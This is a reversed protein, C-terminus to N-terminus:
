ALDRGERVKGKRERVVHQHQENRDRQHRGYHFLGSHSTTLSGVVRSASLCCVSSIGGTRSASVLLVTGCFYFALWTSTIRFQNPAVNFFYFCIPSICKLSLNEKVLYVWFLIM